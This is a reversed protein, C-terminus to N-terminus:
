AWWWDKADAEWKDALRNWGLSRLADILIADGAGHEDEADGKSNTVEQEWRALAEDETM